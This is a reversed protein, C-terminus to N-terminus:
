AVNLEEIYRVKESSYRSYWCKKEKHWHFGNAKLGSRVSASPIGDFYAEVGNKEYNRVVRVKTAATTVVAATNAPTEEVPAAIKKTKNNVVYPKSWSGVDLDYYFNTCFYDIMCDSDDMRYSKIFDNIDIMMAKAWDTLRTEYDMHYPNLQAYGRENTDKFAEYPGDVLAVM